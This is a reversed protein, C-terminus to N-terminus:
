TTVSGMGCRCRTGAHDRNQAYVKDRIGGGGRGTSCAAKSKSDGPVQRVRPQLLTNLLPTPLSRRVPALARSCAHFLGHQHLSACVGTTFPFPLAPAPLDESSDTITQQAKAKVDHM